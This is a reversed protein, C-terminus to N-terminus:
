WQDWHIAEAPDPRMAPKFDTGKTFAVPTLAAMTVEDNPVGLVDAAEQECFLMVTTWATGLGRNRAALMFSWLPPLVSGMLTTKAIPPGSETRGPGCAVVLAPARHMNEALYDASAATRQQNANRADDGKDVVGIYGPTKRYIEYGKRYVDALAKRRDADTVIVFQTLWRNSGSPAQLAVRVCDTLLERSVPRDFDLRKRVSRTTTLVEEASLDLLHETM